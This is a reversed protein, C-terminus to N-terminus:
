GGHGDTLPHKRQRHRQTVPKGIVRVQRAGACRMSSCTPPSSTSPSKRIRPRRVSWAPWRMDAEALRKDDLPVGQVTSRSEPSSRPFERLVREFVAKPWMGM